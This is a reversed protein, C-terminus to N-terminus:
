RWVYDYDDDDDDDVDNDDNDDDDDPTAISVVKTLQKRIGQRVNKLLWNAYYNRKGIEWEATNIKTRKEMQKSELENACM